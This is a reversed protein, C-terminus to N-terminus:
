RDEQPEHLPLRVEAVAGPGDDRDRLGITGRHETVVQRVMALGLGSGKEKTTRFPEFIEDESLGGLGTGEDLVRLV